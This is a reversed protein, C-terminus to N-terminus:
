VARWIRYADLLSDWFAPPLQAFTGSVIAERQSYLTGVALLIWSQVSSPVDPAAGYGATFDVRVSGPLNRCSPWFKGWGPLVRGLLEDTVVQYDGADCVVRSGDANLYSIEQVGVLPPCPVDLSDEPFTSLTLRFKRTVFVRGTRVEAQETAMKILRSLLADEDAHDIRCQARAEALSVPAESAAELLLLGM